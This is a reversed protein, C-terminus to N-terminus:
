TVKPDPVVKKYWLIKPCPIVRKKWVVVPECITRPTYILKPECIAKTCPLVHKDIVSRKCYVIDKRCVTRPPQQVTVFRPGCPAPPCVTPCQPMSCLDSSTYVQPGRQFNNTNLFFTYKRFLNHLLVEPICLSGLPNYFPGCPGCPSATGCPGCPACPDCIPACNPMKQTHSLLFFLKKM